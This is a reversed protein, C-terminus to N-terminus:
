PATPPRGRSADATHEAALRTRGRGDERGAAVDHEGNGYVIRLSRGARYAVHSGTRGGARFASRAAPSSGGVCPERRGSRARVLTRDRSAAVFLGRPSWSADRYDGLATKRGARNVVFLGDSGSVLLRGASPLAFSTRRPPRSPRRSACSRACSGSSRRRPGATASPSRVARRAGLGARGVRAAGRATGPPALAVRRARRPRDPARARARARRRAARGRLLARELPM